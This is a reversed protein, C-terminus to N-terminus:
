KKTGYNNDIFQKRWGIVLPLIFTLGYYIYVDLKYYGVPKFAKVLFIYDFVVALLTWTLSLLLYYWLTKGEVRKMLIAITALIGIPMIIWGIVGTPVFAFLMIGLSYGFFWLAFGWGVADKLIQKVM